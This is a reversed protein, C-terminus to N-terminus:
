TVSFCLNALWRRQRWAGLAKLRLHKCSLKTKQVVKKKTVVQAKLAEAGFFTSSASLLSKAGCDPTKKKNKKEKITL